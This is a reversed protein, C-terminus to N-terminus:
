GCRPDSAPVALEILYAEIVETACRNWGYATHGEMDVTVLVGSELTEAVTVANEYPTAADGTNGVVLIPPADPARLPGPRGTAEVPWTACPLMENAVAGGFRRSRERARDAFEAFAETDAPPPSDTCVVAAYSAYGGFDFYADALSRLTSGDGALADALAPGLNQWGDPSYTTQIAATALEGPGVPGGAGALPATDVSALVEDYAAGLDAVGCVEVGVSRCREIARDFAADFAVTQGILFDEFGLRPDVVGDLVMARVEGPFLEAYMQGIHTGYSYGLFNLPGDDLARRIAELDRAVETTALHPLEDAHREACRESIAAAADLLESREAEGDPDPDAATLAEIGDNCDLGGSAGVGRPDWGVIDFRESVPADFPDYGLYELGSGGPGGPNFTLSGIREGAAPIRALALEITAGDPRDWDLPVPLTACEGAPVEACPAWRLPPAEWDAPFAEEPAISPAVSSIGPEAEPRQDSQESAETPVEGSGCAAAVVAGAALLM